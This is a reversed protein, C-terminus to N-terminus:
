ATVLSAAAGTAPVSWQFAVLGDALLRVQERGVGGFDPLTLTEDDELPANM